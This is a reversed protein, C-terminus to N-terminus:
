ISSCVRHRTPGFSNKWMKRSFNEILDHQFFYLYLPLGILIFLLLATKLIVGLLKFKKRLKKKKNTSISM